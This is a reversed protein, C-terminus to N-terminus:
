NKADLTSAGGLFGAGTWGDELATVLDGVEGDRLEDVYAVVGGLAIGADPHSFEAVIMSKSKKTRANHALATLRVVAVEPGIAITVSVAVETWAYARPAERRISDTVVERVFRLAAELKTGDDM